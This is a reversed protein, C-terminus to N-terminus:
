KKEANTYAILIIDMGVKKKLESEMRSIDNIVENNDTLPAIKFNNNM